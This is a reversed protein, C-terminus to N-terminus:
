GARQDTLHLGRRDIFQQVLGKLRKIEDNLIKFMETRVHDWDSAPCSNMVPTGNRFCHPNQSPAKEGFLELTVHTGMQGNLPPLLATMITEVGDLVSPLGSDVNVIHLTMHVTTRKRSSPPSVDGVRGVRIEGGTGLQLVKLWDKLKPHHQQRVSEDIRANVETLTCPTKRFEAVLRGARDNSLWKTDDKGAVNVLARVRDALGDPTLSGHNKKVRRQAAGIDPLATAVLTLGESFDEAAPKEVGLRGLCGSVRTLLDAARVRANEITARDEGFETALPTGAMFSVAIPDWATNTLAIMNVCLDRFDQTTKEKAALDAPLTRTKKCAEERADILAKVLAAADEAAKVNAESLSALAADKKETYNRLEDSKGVDAKVAKSFEEAVKKLREELEIRADHVRKKWGQRLQVNQEVRDREDGALDVAKQAQQVAVDTPAALGTAILNTAEEVKEKIRAKEDELAGDPAAVAALTVKMGTLVAARGAIAKEVEEVKDGLDKLAVQVTTLATDSPAQLGSTVAGKANTALKGRTEAETASAGVLPKVALADVQVGLAKVQEARGAIAKEIEDIKGSIGLVAARAEKVAAETPGQKGTAVVKRAATVLKERDQSEAVTAGALSKKAFAELEKDCAAVQEARAAVAEGIKAVKESLTKVAGEALSLAGATVKALGASVVKEAEAALKDIEGAEGAERGSAPKKLEGVRKNLRDLGEKWEKFQNSIRTNVKDFEAKHDKVARDVKQASQPDLSDKLGSAVLAKAGDYLKQLNEKEQDQAGDPSVGLDGMQKDLRKIKEERGVAGPDKVPAGQATTAGPQGSQPQPGGILGGSVTNMVTWFGYNFGALSM